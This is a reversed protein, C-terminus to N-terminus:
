KTIVLKKTAIKSGTQIKVLYTGGSLDNLDMNKNFVAAVDTSTYSKVTQGLINYVMININDDAGNVTITINGNSPNPLVSVNNEFAVNQIGTCISTVTVTQTTSFTCGGSDLTLTVPFTGASPYDYTPNVAVLASGGDGFTWKSTYGTLDSSNNVFHAGAGICLSDPATFSPNVNAGNPYMVTAQATASCNLPNTVTVSYVGPTTTSINNTTQGSSWTYIAGALDGTAAPTITHYASNNCPLLVTDTAFNLGLSSTITVYPIMEWNQVYVFSCNIGIGYSTLNYYEANSVESVGATTPTLSDIEGYFSSGPNNGIAATGIFPSPYAPSTFTQGQIVVQQCSDAYSYSLICHSSTDARYYEMRVAFGQGQAFQRGVQISAYHLEQPGVFFPALGAYGIFSISTDLTASVSGHTITYIKFVVSDNAMINHSSVTDGYIGIFLGMSDFSISSGALSMSYLSTNTYSSIALTDFAATAYSVYQQDASHINIDSDRSTIEDAAISTPNTSNWSGNYSIQLQGAVIENYTSYDLADVTDCGM